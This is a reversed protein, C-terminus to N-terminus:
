TPLRFDDPRFHQGSLRGLKASKIRNRWDIRSLAPNSMRADMISGLIARHEIAFSENHSRSRFVGPSYVWGVIRNNDDRLPLAYGKRKATMQHHRCDLSPGRRRSLGKGFLDPNEAHELSYASPHIPKWM